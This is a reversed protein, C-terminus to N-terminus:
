PHTYLLPKINNFVSELNKKLEQASLPADKFGCHNIDNRFGNNGTLTKYYKILGNKNKAYSKMKDFTAQLNDVNEKTAMDLNRKSPNRNDNLVDGSLARYLKNNLHNPGVVKEVLHSVITEQLFTIGQQVLGHDICWQVAAFGNNLNNSHFPSLKRAVERLLPELQQQLGSDQGLQDILSKLGDIDKERVLNYGRCTLIAESFNLMGSSFNPHKDHTLRSLHVPNGADLFSQAAYTWDQLEPFVNLDIVPSEPAEEPNKKADREQRGAEYIGYYIAKVQAKKLTRAYNVLITALMPLSRFGYTVDLFLEDEERIKSYVREFVQWMEETSYGNPIEVADFHGIKGEEKLRQLSAELGPGIVKGDRDTRNKYNKDKADATTFIWIRDESGWENPQATLLAEQVFYMSSSLDSRDNRQYYKTLQYPIAGLFSIFTRPM